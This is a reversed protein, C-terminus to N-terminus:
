ELVNGELLFKVMARPPSNPGKPREREMSQIVYARPKFPKMWSVKGYFRTKRCILPGSGRLKNRIYMSMTQSKNVNFTINNREIVKLNTSM